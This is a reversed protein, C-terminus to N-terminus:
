KNSIALSELITQVTPIENSVDAQEKGIFSAFIEHDNIVVPSELTAFDGLYWETIFGNRSFEVSDILQGGIQIKDGKVYSGSPHDAYFLTLPTITVKDTKSRVGLTLVSGTKSNTITAYRLPNPYPAYESAGTNNIERITWQTPHHLTFEQASSSYEEWGNTDIASNTNTSTNANKAVNTNLNINASGNQNAQSNTNSVTNTNQNANSGNTNITKQNQWIFYVVAAAAILVVVLVAWLMPTTTKKPGSQNQTSDM